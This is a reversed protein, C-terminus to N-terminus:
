SVRQGGRFLIQVESPVFLVDWQALQGANRSLSGQAWSCAHCLPASLTRSPGGLYSVKEAVDGYPQQMRYCARTTVLTPVLLDWQVCGKGLLPEQSQM